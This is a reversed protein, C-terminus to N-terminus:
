ENFSLIPDHMAFSYRNETPLCASVVIDQKANGTFDAFTAHGFVANDEESPLIILEVRDLGNRTGQM